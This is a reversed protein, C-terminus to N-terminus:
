YKRSHLSVIYKQVGLGSLSVGTRVDGQGKFWIRLNDKKDEQKQRTSSNKREEPLDAGRQRERSYVFESWKHFEISSLM